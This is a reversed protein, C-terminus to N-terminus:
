EHGAIAIGGALRDQAGDLLARKPRERNVGQRSGCYRSHKDGGRFRPDMHPRGGAQLLNRASFPRMAQMWIDPRNSATAFVAPWSPKRSSLELCVQPTHRWHVGHLTERRPDIGGDARARALTTDAPAHCGM